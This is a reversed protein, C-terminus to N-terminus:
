CGTTDRRGGLLFRFVGLFLGLWLSRWFALHGLLDRYCLWAVWERCGAHQEGGAMRKRVLERKWSEWVRCRGLGDFVEEEM